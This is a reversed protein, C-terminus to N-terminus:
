RGAGFESRRSFLAAPISPVQRFRCLAPADTLSTYTESLGFASFRIQSGPESARTVTPGVM